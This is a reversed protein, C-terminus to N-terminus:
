ALLPAESAEVVTTTALGVLNRLLTLFRLDLTFSREVTWVKHDPTLTLCSVGHGKIAVVPRVGTRQKMIVPRSRGKHALVEDGINVREIPKFGTRTLM